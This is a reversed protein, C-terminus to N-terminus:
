IRQHQSANAPQWSEQRLMPMKGPRSPSTPAAAAMIRPSVPKSGRSLCENADRVEGIVNPASEHHIPMSEASRALVRTLKIIKYLTCRDFLLHFHMVEVVVCLLLGFFFIHTKKRYPKQKAHANWTQQACCGCWRKEQKRNWSSFTRKKWENNTAITTTAPTCPNILMKFSHKDIAQVKVADFLIYQLRGCRCSSSSGIREDSKM